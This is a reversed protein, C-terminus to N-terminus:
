EPSWFPNGAQIFKVPVEPIVEKLDDALYKMGDEESIAHGLLIIAKRMGADVADRVYEVTEWERSEGAILVEVDDRQLMNIQSMSGPAGVSLGVQTCKLEPDGIIRITSVSYHDKLSAALQKLSMEPVVFINEEGDVLYKEWGLGKVMGKVIGDPTMMHIHDHFRWVVLNHEELFKIKMDQVPDGQLPETYDYHNYFTPEHTIIFNCNQDVARKLVDYTALFTTAVGTIIEDSRGTKFQDVTEELWEVGTYEYIRAVIDEATLDYYPRNNECKNM